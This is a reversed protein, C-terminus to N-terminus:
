TCYPLPVDPDDSCTLDDSAKEIGDSEGEDYGTSHGSAFGASNGNAYGESRAQDSLRTARRRERKRTARKARRVEKREHSQAAEKTDAIKAAMEVAHERDAKRIAATVAAQEQSAVAQDNLRTAQGGFFAAAAVGITAAIAAVARLTSRGDIKITVVIEKSTDPRDLSQERLAGARV